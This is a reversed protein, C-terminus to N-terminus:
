NPWRPSCTTCTILDYLILQRQPVPPLLLQARALDHGHVDLDKRGARDETRPLRQTQEDLAGVDALVRRAGRGVAVMGVAVVAPVDDM